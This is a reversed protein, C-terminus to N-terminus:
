ARKSMSERDRQGQIRQRNPPSKKASEYMIEDAFVFNKERVERTFLHNHKRRGSRGSRGTRERHGRQFVTKEISFFVVNECNKTWPTGLSPM